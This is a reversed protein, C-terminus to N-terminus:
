KGTGRSASSCPRGSCRRTRGAPFYKTVLVQLRGLGEVPGGAADFQPAAAGEDVEVVVGGGSSSHMLGNAVM